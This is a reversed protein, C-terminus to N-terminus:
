ISAPKMSPGRTNDGTSAALRYENIARDHQNSADFIKGLNIHSWVETWSPQLDGTLAERFENAAPQLNHELLFKEGLQYHALSSNRNALDGPKNQSFGLAGFALMVVVAFRPKM